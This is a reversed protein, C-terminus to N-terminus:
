ILGKLRSGRTALGLAPIGLSTPLVLRNSMDGFRKTLKPGAKTDHPTLRSPPQQPVPGSYIESSAAATLAIFGATGSLLVRDAILEARLLRSISSAFFHTMIPSFILGVPLFSRRCSNCAPFNLM